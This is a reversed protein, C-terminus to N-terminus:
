GFGFVLHFDEETSAPLKLRTQSNRRQLDKGLYHRIESSGMVDLWGEIKLLEKAPRGNDEIQSGLVKSHKRAMAGLLLNGRGHVVLQGRV